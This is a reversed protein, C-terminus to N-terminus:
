EGAIVPIEISGPAEDGFVDWGEPAERAFMELRPLDGMLRIIRDRAEQPKQSDKSEFLPRFFSYYWYCARSLHKYITNDLFCQRLKYLFVMVM